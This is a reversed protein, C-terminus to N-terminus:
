SKKELEGNLKIIDEESFYDLGIVEKFDHNSIADVIKWTGTGFDLHKGKTDVKSNIFEAFEKYVEDRGDWNGYINPRTTYFEILM